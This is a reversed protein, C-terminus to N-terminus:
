GGTGMPGSRYAGTTLSLYPDVPKKNQDFLGALSALGSTAAYQNQIGQAVSANYKNVQNGFIQSNYANQAGTNAVVLKTVDGGSLGANRQPNQALLKSFYNRDRQEISLIPRGLAQAKEFETSGLDASLGAKGMADTLQKSTGGSLQNSADAVNFERGKVLQPFRRAFDADSINFGAEDAAKALAATRSINIPVFDRPHASNAAEVADNQAKISYATGAASIM